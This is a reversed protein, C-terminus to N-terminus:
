PDYLLPINHVIIEFAVLQLKNTCSEMVTDDKASVLILTVRRAQLMLIYCKLVDPIWTQRSMYM